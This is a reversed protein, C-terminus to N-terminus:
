LLNGILTTTTRTTTTTTRQGWFLRVLWWGCDAIWGATVASSVCKAHKNLLYFNAYIQWHSRVFQLLRTSMEAENTFRQRLDFLFGPL